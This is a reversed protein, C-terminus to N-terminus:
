TNDRKLYGSVTYYEFLFWHNFEIDKMLERMFTKHIEFYIKEIIEDPLTDLYNM